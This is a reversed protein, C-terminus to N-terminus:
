KFVGAKRGMELILKKAEPSVDVPGEPPAEVSKAKEEKKPASIVKETKPEIGVIEKRLAELLDLRLELLVEVTKDIKSISNTLEKKRTTM